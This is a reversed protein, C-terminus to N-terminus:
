RGEVVLSVVLDLQGSVRAFYERAIELIREDGGEAPDLIQEVLVELFTGQENSVDGEVVIKGNKSQAQFGFVADNEGQFFDAYMHYPWVAGPNGRRMGLRFEPVREKLRLEFELMAAQFEIWVQNWTDENM